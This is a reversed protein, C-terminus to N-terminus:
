NKIDEDKVQFPVMEKLYHKETKTLSYNYLYVQGNPKLFQTIVQMCALCPYLIHEKNSIIHIEKFSGIKAGQVVSSFLASREACLGSPFAANECNVGYFENNKDDIAVSAVQVNSYPCYSLKLKEKLTKVNM